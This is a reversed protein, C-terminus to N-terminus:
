LYSVPNFKNNEKDIYKQAEEETHFIQDEEVSLAGCSGVFQIFYLGNKKSSVRGRKPKENEIIYCTDGIGFGM